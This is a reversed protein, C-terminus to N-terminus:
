EAQLLSIGVGRRGPNACGCAAGAIELRKCVELVIIESVTERSFRASELFMAFTGIGLAAFGM